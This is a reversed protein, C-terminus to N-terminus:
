AVAPRFARLHMLLAVLHRLAAEEQRSGLLLDMQLIAARLHEVECRSLVVQGDRSKRDTETRMM